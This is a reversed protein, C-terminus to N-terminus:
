RQFLFMGLFRYIQKKKYGTNVLKQAFKLLAYFRM